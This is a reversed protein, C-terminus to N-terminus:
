HLDALVGVQPMEALGTERAHEQFGANRWFFAGPITTRVVVAYTVKTFRKALGEGALYEIFAGFGPLDFTKKNTLVNNM